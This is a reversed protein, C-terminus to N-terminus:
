DILCALLCVFCSNGPFLEQLYKLKATGGRFYAPGPDEMDVTYATTHGSHDMQPFPSNGVPLISLITGHSEFISSSSSIQSHNHLTTHVTCYAEHLLAVSM